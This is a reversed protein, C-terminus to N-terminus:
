KSKSKKVGKCKLLKDCLDKDKAELEGAEFSLLESKFIINKGGQPILLRM